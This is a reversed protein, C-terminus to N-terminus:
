GIYQFAEKKSKGIIFPLRLYYSASSTLKYPFIGKISNITSSSTKKSFLVSSKGDNVQQGSWSCYLDLCSKITAAESSTAKAFIILDDAFLLHTITPCDKSIKIGKLLGIFEQHHFLRSLVETGLIFLFPSLHDGQRLGRSPTFFVLPPVM